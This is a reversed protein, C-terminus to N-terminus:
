IKGKQKCPGNIQSKIQLYRYMEWNPITYLSFEVANWNTLYVPIREKGIHICVPIRMCKFEINQEHTYCGLTNYLKLSIRCKLVKKM